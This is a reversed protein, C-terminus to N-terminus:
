KDEGAYTRVLARWFFAEREDGVGVDCLLDWEPFRFNKAPEVSLKEPENGDSVLTYEM